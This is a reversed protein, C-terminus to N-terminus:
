LYNKYTRGVIVQVLIKKNTCIFTSSKLFLGNTKKHFCQYEMWFLFILHKSVGLFSLYFVLFLQTAKSKIYRFYTRSLKSSCYSIDFLKVVYFVTIYGIYSFKGFNNIYCRCAYGKGVTVPSDDSVSNCRKKFPM